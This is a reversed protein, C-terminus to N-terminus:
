RRFPGPHRWGPRRRSAPAHDGGFQLGGCAIGYRRERHVEWTRSVCAAGETWERGSACRRQSRPRSRVPKRRKTAAITCDGSVAWAGRCRGRFHRPCGESLPLHLRGSDLVNSAAHCTQPHNHAARRRGSASLGAAHDRDRVRRAYRLTAGQKGGVLFQPAAPAGEDRSRSGYITPGYHRRPVECAIAPTDSAQRTGRKPLVTRNPRDAARKGDRRPSPPQVSLARNSM